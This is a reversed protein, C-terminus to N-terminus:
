QRVGEALDKFEFTKGTRWDKILCNAGGFLNKNETFPPSGTLGDMQWLNWSIIEAITTLFDEPPKRSFKENYYDKVTEFVNKRALFLNDGQFEYGYISQVARVTFNIWDNPTSTERNIVSLKRDLLGVRNKIDIPEGTVANYRSVLYPAEGCTIELFKADIYDTWSKKDADILDNQIKCIDPPTFIEARDRARQKQHERLKEHRPRILEIQAAQIETAGFESNAWLINKGTTRDCLLIETIM